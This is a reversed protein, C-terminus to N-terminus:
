GVKAGQERLLKKLISRHCRNEDVCYCGVSFDAHHSLAALLAILHQRDKMERRYSREFKTWRPGTLPQAMAWSVIKASPSLDPLWLDYFGRRVYDKKKVGRPPRRVA